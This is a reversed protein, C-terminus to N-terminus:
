AIYAATFKMHANEARHESRARMYMDIRPGVRYRGSAPKNWHFDGERSYGFELMEGAPSLSLSLFLSSISHFLDGMALQFNVITKSLM